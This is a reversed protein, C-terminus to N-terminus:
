AVASFRLGAHNEGTCSFQVDIETFTVHDSVTPPINLRAAAGTAGRKEDIVPIRFLGGSIEIKAHSRQGFCGRQDQFLYVRISSLNLTFIKESPASLAPM